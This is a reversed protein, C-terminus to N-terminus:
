VQGSPSSMKLFFYTFSIVKMPLPLSCGAPPPLSRGAPDRGMSYDIFGELGQSSGIFTQIVFHGNAHM